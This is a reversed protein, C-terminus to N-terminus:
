MWMSLNKKNWKQNSNCTRSNFKFKCECSIHKAMLKAENKNTLM